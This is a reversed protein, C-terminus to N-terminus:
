SLSIEFFSAFYSSLCVSLSVFLKRKWRNEWMEITGRECGRLLSLACEEGRGEIEARLWPALGNTRVPLALFRIQRAVFTTPGSRRRSESRSRRGVVDPPAKQKGDNSKCNWSVRHHTHKHRETHTERHTRTHTHTHEWYIHTMFIICSLPHM